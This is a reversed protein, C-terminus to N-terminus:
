KSYCFLFPILYAVRIGSLKNVQTVKNFATQLAERTGMIAQEHEQLVKKHENLETQHNALEKKHETLVEDHEANRTKREEIEQEM